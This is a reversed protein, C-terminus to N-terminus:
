FNKFERFFDTEKPSFNFPTVFDQGDQCSQNRLIRVIGLIDDYSKNQM